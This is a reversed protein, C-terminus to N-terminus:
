ESIEGSALSLMWYDQNVEDLRRSLNRTHEVFLLSVNVLFAHHSIMPMEYCLGM